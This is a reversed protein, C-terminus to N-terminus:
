PAIQIVTGLFPIRQVARQRHPLRQDDQVVVHNRLRHQGRGPLHALVARDPGEIEALPHIEVVAGGEVGVRYHQVDGLELFFVHRRQGIQIGQFLHIVVRHTEDHLLGCGVQGLEDGVEGAGHEGRLRQVFVAPGGSGDAGARELEHLVDLVVTDDQFAVFVVPALKGHQLAHGELVDRVGSGAEGSELGPLYVGDGVHPRQLRLLCGDHLLVRVQNQQLLADSGRVVQGKIAPLRREVVHAQALCDTQENVALGQHVVGQVAEALRADADNGRVGPLPHAGVDGGWVVQLCGFGQGLFRQAPLPYFGPEDQM